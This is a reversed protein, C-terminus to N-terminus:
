PNWRMCERGRTVSLGRKNPEFAWWFHCRHQYKLWPIFSNALRSFGSKQLVGEYVCSHSSLWSSPMSLWQYWSLQTHSLLTPWPPLIQVFVAALATVHATQNYFRSIGREPVVKSHSSDSSWVVAISFPPSGFFMVIKLVHYVNYPKPKCHCAHHSYRLYKDLRRVLFNFLRGWHKGHAIFKNIRQSLKSANASGRREDGESGKLHFVLM